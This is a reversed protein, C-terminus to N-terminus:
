ALWDNWSVIVIKDRHGLAGHALQISPGTTGDYRTSWSGIANKPGTVLQETLCNSRSGITNLTKDFRRVVVTMGREKRGELFKVFKVSKVLKKHERFREPDIFWYISLDIFRYIWSRHQIIYQEQVKIRTRSGSGQGLDKIRNMSGYGRDPAKIRSGPDPDLDGIRSRSRSGQDKIGSECWQDHDKIM